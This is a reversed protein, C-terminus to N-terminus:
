LSFDALGTDFNTYQYTIVDMCVVPNLWKVLSGNFNPFPHTIADWM